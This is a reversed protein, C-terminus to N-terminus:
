DEKKRRYMVVAYAMGLVAALSLFVSVLITDGTKPVSALPVEEDPM